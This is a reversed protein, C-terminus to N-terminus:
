SNLWLRPLRKVRDSQLNSFPWATPVKIRVM